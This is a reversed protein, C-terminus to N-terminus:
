NGTKCSKQLCHGTNRERKNEEIDNDSIAHKENNENENRNSKRETVKKNVRLNGVDKTKRSTGGYMSTELQAQGAPGSVHVTDPGPARPPACVRELSDPSPAKDQERVFLSGRPSPLRPAPSHMKVRPSAQVRALPKEEKPPYGMSGSGPLNGPPASVAGDISLCPDISKVDAPPTASLIEQQRAERKRIKDKQRKLKSNGKVKKPM